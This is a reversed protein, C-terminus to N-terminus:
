NTEAVLSIEFKKLDDVSPLVDYGRVGIDRCSEQLFRKMLNKSRGGVTIMVLRSQGPFISAMLMHSERREGLDIKWVLFNYPLNESRRIESMLPAGLKEEFIWHRETDSLPIMFIGFASILIGGDRISKYEAIKIDLSLLRM